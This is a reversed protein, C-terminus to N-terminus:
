PVLACYPVYVCPREEAYYSQETTTLFRYSIYMKQENPQQGKSHRKPVMIHQCSRM